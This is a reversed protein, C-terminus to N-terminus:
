LPLRVRAVRVTRQEGATVTYALVATEWGTRVLQPYAGGASGPVTTEAVRQGAASIRALRIVRAGARGVDYAVLAGGDALALVTAHATPVHEARSVDVLPGTSDAPMARLRRYFIGSVGPKGSYWATHLWGDASAALAPGTHPCGPYAWEDAHVRRPPDAPGAAVAALVVDRVSGDFHQRWAASVAGTPGRALSVRCCPCVKGWLRVNRAWTRGFDSSVAAYITADPEGGPPEVGGAAALEEQTHREDLWAVLLGSDGQWAAGHFQHSVPAASASDDNLTIPRSWTAGGDTSRALRLTTAPWKRGAVPISQPWAIAVRGGPAVVLRPSSEGHPHVENPTGPGGAVVAPASWSAGGDRSRAVYLTWVEGAGAIWGLLLNGSRPEVALAPDASQHDRDIPLLLPETELEARCGAAAIAVAATALRVSWKGLAASM